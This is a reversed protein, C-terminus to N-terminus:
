EQGNRTAKTGQYVAFWWALLNTITLWWMDEPNGGQAPNLGGEVIRVKKLFLKWSEDENLRCVQLVSSNAVKPPLNNANSTTIILKGCFQSSSCIRNLFTEWVQPTEVDELVILFRTGYSLKTLWRMSADDSLTETRALTTKGSGGEVVLAIVKTISQDRDQECPVEKILESSHGNNLNHQPILQVVLEKSQRELDFVDTGDGLCCGRPIEWQQLQCHQGSDNELSLLRTSNNCYGIDGIDSSFDEKEMEVLRRVEDNFKKMERTFLVQSWLSYVFSRFPRFDNERGRRRRIEQLQKKKILLADTADATFCVAELIQAIRHDNASDGGSSSSPLFEKLAHLNDIAALVQKRFSSNTNTNNTAGDPLLDQLKNILLSVSIKADM